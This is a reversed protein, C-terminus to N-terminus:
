GVPDWRFRASVVGHDTRATDPDAVHDNWVRM